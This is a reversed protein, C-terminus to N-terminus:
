EIITKISVAGRVQGLEYGIAQDNPYLHKLLAKVNPKIEESNGHCQLCMSQTPIAKMYRMWQKGSAETVESVEMESVPKGEQQLRDFEALTKAEWVDPVGISPNRHKLSVRTVIRHNSSADKAMMPAVQQCVKVAEEAGSSELQSKLVKGLGQTFEVAVKRSTELHKNVLENASVNLNLTMLMLLLSSQKIM